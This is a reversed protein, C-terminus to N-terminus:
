AALREVLEDLQNGVVTINAADIVSPAHRGTSSLPAYIWDREQLSVQAFVPRQLDAAIAIHELVNEDWNINRTNYSAVVLGGVNSIVKTWQDIDEDIVYEPNSLLQVGLGRRQLVEEWLIGLELTLGIPSRPRTLAVEPQGKKM